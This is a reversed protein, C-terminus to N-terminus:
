DFIIYDYPAVANSGTGKLGFRVTYASTTTLTGTNPDYSVYDDRLRNCAEDKACAVQTVAGGDIIITTIVDPKSTGACMSTEGALYIIASKVNVLGTASITKGAYSKGSEETWSTVTGRKVVGGRRTISAEGM